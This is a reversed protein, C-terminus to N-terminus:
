AAGGRGEIERRLAAAEGWRLSAYTVLLVLASYRAPVARALALVEHGGALLARVLNQGLLGTGGTVFARM